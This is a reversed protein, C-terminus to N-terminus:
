EKTWTTRLVRAGQVTKSHKAIIKPSASLEVAVAQWDTKISDKNATWTVKGLESTLGARDGLVVQLRARANEEAEKALKSMAQCTKFEAIADKEAETQAVELEKKERSYKTKIWEATQESGTVEPPMGQSVHKEYWASAQEVMSAYLEADAKITYERYDSGGILVALYWVPVGLLGAYWQCQCVYHLPIDDTGPEGWHDASRQHATKIELGAVINGDENKLVRDPSGHMYDFSEHQIVPHECVAFETHQAAFEAAVVSELNRGWKMAPNDPIDPVQGTIQLWLDFESKWPNLGLITSIATGGISRGMTYVPKQSINDM